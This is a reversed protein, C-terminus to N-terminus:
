LPYKMKWVIFGEAYVNPDDSVLSGLYHNKRRIIDINISQRDIQSRYSELLELKFDFDIVSFINPQFRLSSGSEYFITTMTRKRSVSQAIYSSRRHDQHTDEQYHAFVLEFQFEDLKSVIHETPLDRSFTILRSKPLNLLKMAELQEKMRSEPLGTRFEDASTIVIYVEDGNKIHKRLTGGCGIEVDDFHAGIAAIRM